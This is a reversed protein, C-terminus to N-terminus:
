SYRPQCGKVLPAAVLVGLIARIVSGRLCKLWCQGAFLIPWGALPDRGKTAWDGLHQRGLGRTYPIPGLLLACPLPDGDRDRPRPPDLDLDPGAAVQLCRTSRPRTRSCRCGTRSWGRCWSGVAVSIAWGIQRPAENEGTGHSPRSRRRFTRSGNRAVFSKGTHLPTHPVVREHWVVSPVLGHGGRAPGLCGAIVDPDPANTACSISREARQTEMPIAHWGAETTAAPHAATM